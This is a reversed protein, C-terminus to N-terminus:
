DRKLDAGGESRNKFIQELEDLLPLQGQNIKLKAEKIPFWEAKDTEPFSQKSGSKSPWEIEFTNSCIYPRDLDQEVAWVIILKGSKIRVPTLQLLEESHIINGTEETFERKAVQQPDEGEDYEGKPISWAGLDKNRFFPGGPHVLLVELQSHYFRYVLIGASRKVM